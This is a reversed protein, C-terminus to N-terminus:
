GFRDRYQYYVSAPWLFWPWGHYLPMTPFPLQAFPLPKGGALWEAAMTGFYTSLAVGGGCYGMAYTVGDLRGFHPLQDFTFGVQGGWAYEIPVDGVEPYVRLMERVLTARASAVTTPAFSSRGGFVLRNDPSLRWYSLFNKTELCLHGKPSIRRALDAPLPETAVMHSGIPIIRRRLPPVLSDTYGNTALLVEPSEVIGRPTHARLRGNSRELRTVPTDAHLDAGARGAARVLGAFFRAPQIRATKGVLLGGVYAPSGAEAEVEERSLLRAEQGLQERILRASAKLRELHFPREALYLYGCPVFDCDIAEEEILSTILEMARLTEDYLLRGLKGYHEVLYSLSRKLGPHVFGANRTSAGWGLSAKELLVAHKGRKALQRAAAVGTYGGGVIVVDATPPLPHEGPTPIALDDRWLVGERYTPSLQPM